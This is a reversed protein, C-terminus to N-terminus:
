RSLMELCERVQDYPISDLRLAISTHILLIATYCILAVLSARLALRKHRFRWLLATGLSVLVTKTTLFLAPQEVIDAMLPNAELAIGFQVWAITMLADVFNLVWVLALVLVMVTTENRM